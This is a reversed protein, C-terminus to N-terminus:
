KLKVKIQRNKEGSPEEDNAAATTVATVVAAATAYGSHAHPKVSREMEGYVYIYLSSLKYTIVYM